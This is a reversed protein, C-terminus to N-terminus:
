DRLQGAVLCGFQSIKNGEFGEPDLELQLSLELRGLLRGRVRLPSIPSSPPSTGRHGSPLTYVPHMIPLWASGTTASATALPSMASAGSTVELQERWFEIQRLPDVPITLGQEARFVEHAGRSIVLHVSRGRQLLLQLARTALPTASAGTVGLVYPHM